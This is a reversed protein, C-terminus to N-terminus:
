RMVVALNGFGVMATISIFFMLAVTALSVMILQLSSALSFVADSIRKDCIPEVLAGVVKYVFVIAWIKIIPMVTFFFIMVLGFVGVTNKILLSGGVVVEVANSFMTGIVPVISSTLFKAARLGVGDAVPAIAGRVVIVGLFVTFAFSLLMTCASRVLSGLRTLSFDPVFNALLGIIACINLLPFLITGILVAIANVVAILVPHFLAASTIGGVAALLTSMMPLLAYMFSVMDDISSQALIIASQFSKLGLFVIVLLCVACALNVMMENGFSSQLQRLLASLLAIIILQRMLHSSLMVEKFLTTILTQLLELLNLNTIGQSLISQWNIEPIYEQYEPEILETYILLKELGLSSLQEKISEELVTTENLNAYAPKTLVLLLILIIVSRKVSDKGVM